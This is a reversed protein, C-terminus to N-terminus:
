SHIHVMFSTLLCLSGKNEYTETETHTLIKTHQTHNEHKFAYTNQFWMTGLHFGGVEVPVM